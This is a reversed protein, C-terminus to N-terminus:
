GRGTDSRREKRLPLYINRAVRHPQMATVSSEDDTADACRAGARRGTGGGLRVAGAGAGLRGAGVGAGGRALGASRDFLSRGSEPGGRGSPKLGMVSSVARLSVARRRAVISFSPSRILARLASFAAAAPPVPAAAASSPWAALDSGAACFADASDALSVM